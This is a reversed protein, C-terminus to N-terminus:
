ANGYVDFGESLIFKKLLAAAKQRYKWGPNVGEKQEFYKKADAEVVTNMIEDFRGFENITTETNKFNMIRRVLDVDVGLAEHLGRIYGMKTQNLREAIVDKITANEDVALIGARIDTIIDNAAKQEEQTLIAFSSHLEDLASNLEDETVNEIKLLRLYKRFNNVMYDTDIKVSTMETINKKLDFPLEYIEYQFIKSVERYRQVLIHYTKEDLQLDKHDWELGQLEASVKAQELRNFTIVFKAIDAKEQPLKSFDPSTRFLRKIDDFCRNIIEINQPLRDVFVSFKKEGSYLRVAEDIRQEMLHPRRYYRIIGFPKQTSDFLRNTRSFAQIIHECELVKDLYLTNLWKSDFGTLMQDVVILIDLEQDKKINMYQKKHALRNAVDKKFDPDTISFRHGGFYRNNYDEIIEILGDEKFQANASNDINKDFLASVKIEPAIQKFLRYYIIAEKISSTAFLAHFKGRSLHLFHKKIDEVVGKCYEETEYQSAPLENEIALIDRYYWDYYVKEKEQNGLVDNITMSKAKYLAVSERIEADSYVSVPTVDFGLVNKDRIGDAISYRHLEDGFLDATTCGKKRNEIMIPTGTFGFYVANTFTRKINRLMGGFTDRHCEDVIIVMRKQNIKELDALSLGEERIRSMKQISTVILTDSHNDSKLKGILTATNDTDQIEELPNAFNRYNDLSQIGLEIRDLLFVVKEADRGSAILQAAKFSTLSKGSGTTAFIYGGLEHKEHWKTRYVVKAIERAAYIQYSRLVKLTNDTKDAVTYYGILQHAEPISLLQDAILRWDNIPENNFDAWHFYYESNFENKGPNAFYVTEEPNMAVFVQVLAFIGTFVDERYYKEIQYCAESINVGSKKLEIHIVPMGNVLLLVDGRRNPLIARHKEFMPQEVIQYRSTGGAIEQRDFIKLSIEKGRHAIDPSDDDRVITVTRGNIFGNLAVPSKLDAIRSMIQNMERESLPVGNLHDIDCNNDYLIDAWNQILDKETPYRIIKDSWGKNKLVDILAQEFSLEDSFM